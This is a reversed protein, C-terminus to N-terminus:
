TFVHMDVVVRECDNRVGVPYSYKYTTNLHLRQSVIHGNLLKQHKWLTCLPLPWNLHPLLMAYPVFHSAGCPYAHGNEMSYFIATIKKGEISLNMQLVFTYGKHIDSGIEM